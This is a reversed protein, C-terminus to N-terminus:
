SRPDLVYSSCWSLVLTNIILRAHCEILTRRHWAHHYIHIFPKRLMHLWQTMLDRSNILGTAHGMSNIRDDPQYLDSVSLKTTLPAQWFQCAVVDHFLYVTKLRHNKPIKPFGNGSDSIVALRDHDAMNTCGAKQCVPMIFLVVDATYTFVM